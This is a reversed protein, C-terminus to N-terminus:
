KKSEQIKAEEQKPQTRDQIFDHHVLYEYVHKAYISQKKNQKDQKELLDPNNKYIEKLYDVFKSKLKLYKESKKEEMQILKDIIKQTVYNGFKDKIMM